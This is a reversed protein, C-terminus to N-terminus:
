RLGTGPISMGSCRVPKSVSDKTLYPRKRMKRKEGLSKNRGGRKERACERIRREHDAGVVQGQREM